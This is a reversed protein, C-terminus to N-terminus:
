RARAPPPVCISGALLLGAKYIWAKTGRQCFYTMIYCLKPYKGKSSMSFLASVVICLELHLTQVYCNDILRPCALGTVELSSPLQTGGSGQPAKSVCDLHIFLCRTPPPFPSHYFALWSRNLYVSVFVPPVTFFDVVSNVELWFWLKDNAAIFRLGFYLLFFVNFAMDIQLTFDKYFNQCSEIPDALVGVGGCVCLRIKVEEVLGRRLYLGVDVNLQM